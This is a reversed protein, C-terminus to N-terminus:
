FLSKTSYFYLHRSEKKVKDRCTVSFKDNVLLWCTGDEQVKRLINDAILIKGRLVDQVFILHVCAGFIAFLNGSLFSFRLSLTWFLITILLYLIRDAFSLVRQQVRTERINKINCLNNKLFHNMISCYVVFSIRYYFFYSITEYSKLLWIKNSVWIFSSQFNWSTESYYM